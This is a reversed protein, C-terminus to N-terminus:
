VHDNLFEEVDTGNLSMTFLIQDKRDRFNFEVKHFDSRHSWRTSRGKGANGFNSVCWRLLCLYMDPTLGRVSNEYKIGVNVAFPKKPIGEVQTVKFCKM